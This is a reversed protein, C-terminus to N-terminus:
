PVQWTAVVFGGLGIPDLLAESESIRSRMTMAHLGPRAAQRTWIRRGEEVLDDIGYLQLFQAQTRVATPAPLQDLPVDTTIDQLGALALYHEGPANQRYTRLWERWPRVALEATTAAAYDIMVMTGASLLERASDFFKAAQDVVPARSGISSRPPLFEPRPDFTSSLREVFREGDGIDVFAERWGDDFVALRFPVNDFLENAIVVGVLPGDPLAATSSVGDPHRERQVASTEVAFYNLASLCAPEAALVSRALTGPGAGADIVTFREPCGLRAWEVDLFRAIVTGFLPGVEPSTIFDGRRGASGGDRRMYFGDPGYLAFEMFRDFPIPGDSEIAARIAAHGM